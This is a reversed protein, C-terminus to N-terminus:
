VTFYDKLWAILRGDINTVVDAEGISAYNEGTSNVQPRKMMLSNVGRLRDYDFISCPDASASDNERSYSHTTTGDDAGTGHNCTIHRGM